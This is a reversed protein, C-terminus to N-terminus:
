KKEPEQNAMNLVFRFYVARIYAPIGTWLNCLLNDAVQNVPFLATNAANYEAIQFNKDSVPFTGRFWPVWFFNHSLHSRVPINVTDAGAM